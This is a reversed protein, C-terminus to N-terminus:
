VRQLVVVPIARTTKKRYEDYEPWVEVMRAWLQPKETETAVRTHVQFRQDKVQVEAQPNDELHVFWAPPGDTGGDSAM